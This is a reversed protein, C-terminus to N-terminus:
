IRLSKYILSINNLKCRQLFLFFVLVVETILIGHFLTGIKLVKKWSSGNFSFVNM